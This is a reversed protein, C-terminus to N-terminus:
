LFISHFGIKDEPHTSFIDQQMFAVGVSLFSLCCILAKPLAGFVVSKFHRHRMVRFPSTVTDPYRTREAGLVDVPPGGSMSEPLM